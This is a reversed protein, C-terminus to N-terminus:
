AGTPIDLVKRLQELKLLDDLWKRPFIRDRVPPFYPAPIEITVHRRM